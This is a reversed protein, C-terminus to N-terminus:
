IYYDIIINYDRNSKHRNFNYYNCMEACFGCLHLDQPIAESVIHSAVHQRMKLLLVQKECGFVKCKLKDNDNIGDSYNSPLLIFNM